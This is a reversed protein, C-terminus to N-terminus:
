PGIRDDASQHPKVACFEQWAKFIGRLLEFRREFSGADILCHRARAHAAHQEADTEIIHQPGYYLGRISYSDVHDGRAVPAM